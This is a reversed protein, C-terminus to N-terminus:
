LEPRSFILMQSCLYTKFSHMTEVRLVFLVGIYVDLSYDWM